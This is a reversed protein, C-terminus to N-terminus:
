LPKYKSLGAKRFVFRLILAAGALIAVYKAFQVTNKVPSPVPQQVTDPKIKNVIESLGYGGLVLFLTRVALNIIAAM